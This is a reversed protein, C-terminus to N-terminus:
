ADIWEDVNVIANETASLVARFIDIKACAGGGIEVNQGDPETFKLGTNTVIQTTTAATPSQNCFLFVRTDGETGLCDTFLTSTAPLTINISAAVNDNAAAGSNVTITNSDCVQAASLTMAVTLTSSADTVDGTKNLDGTVRVDNSFTSTAGVSMYGSAVLNTFNSDGQSGFSGDSGQPALVNVVMNEVNQITIPAPDVVPDGAFFDQAQVYVVSGFIVILLASLFALNRAGLAEKNLALKKM